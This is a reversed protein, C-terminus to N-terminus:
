HFISHMCYLMHLMDIKNEANRIKCIPSFLIEQYHLQHATRTFNTFSKTLLMHTKPSLLKVILKRLFYDVEELTYIKLKDVLYSAIIQSHADDRITDTAILDKNAKNRIVLSNIKFLLM